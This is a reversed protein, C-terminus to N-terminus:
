AQDEKGGGDGRGTVLLDLASKGVEQVEQVAYPQDRYLLRHSKPGITATLSDRRVRFKLTQFAANEAAAVREAGSLPTMEALRKGCELWGSPESRLGNDVAPGKAEIIIRRDLRGAAIRMPRKERLKRRPAACWGHQRVQRDPHRRLRDRHRRPERDVAPRSNCRHGGMGCREFQAPPPHRQARGPHRALRGDPRVARRLRQRGEAERNANWHGFLLIAAQTLEPPLEAPEYGAVYSIRVTGPGFATVPFVENYAPLLMRTPARSWAFARCRRSSATRLDDYKSTSSRASRARSCGSRIQAPRWPYPGAWAESLAPFAPFWRREIKQTLNKGTMREVAGIAARLFGALLADEDSGEIRQAAKATALDVAEGGIALVGLAYLTEGGSTVMTCEVTAVTGGTGGSLLV